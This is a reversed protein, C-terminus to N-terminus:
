RSFFVWAILQLLDPSYPPSLTPCKGPLPLTGGGGQGPASMHRPLGAAAAAPARPSQGEGGPSRFGVGRRPRRGAAWVLSGPRVANGPGWGVVCM